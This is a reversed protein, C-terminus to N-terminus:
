PPIILVVGVPEKFVLSTTGPVDVPPISGCVSSASAAVERIFKTAHIIEFSPWRDDCSTEPIVRKTLDELKSELVDAFRLLIARREAVPTRKWTSFATAATEVARIGVEVTASSAYHITKGTSGQVVPFLQSEPLTIAENNIVNPVVTAGTSSTQLYM